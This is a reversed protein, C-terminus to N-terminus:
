VKYLRRDQELQKDPYAIMIDAAGRISEYLLGDSWPSDDHVGTNKDGKAVRDFNLLANRTYGLKLKEDILDQRDPVYKGELKDFVDYVTKGTWVTLRPSRFADKIKVDGIKLPSIFATAQAISYDAVHCGILVLAIAICNL